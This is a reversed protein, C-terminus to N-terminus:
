WNSGSNNERDALLLSDDESDLTTFESLNPVGWFTFDPVWPDLLYDGIYIFLSDPDCYWNYDCL